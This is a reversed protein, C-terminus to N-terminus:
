SVKDADTVSPVPVAANHATAIAQAKASPKDKKAPQAFLNGQKATVAFLNGQRSWLKGECFRESVNFSVSGDNHQKVDSIRNAPFWRELQGGEDRGYPIIINSPTARWAGKPLKISAIGDSIKVVCPHNDKNFKFSEIFGLANTATAKGEFLKAM